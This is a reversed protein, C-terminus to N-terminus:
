IPFYGLHVCAWNTYFQYSIDIDDVKLVFHGFAAAPLNNNM